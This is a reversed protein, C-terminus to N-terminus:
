YSLDGDESQEEFLSFPLFVSVYSEAMGMGPRFHYMHIRENVPDIAYNADKILDHFDRNRYCEEWDESSECVGVNYNNFESVYSSNSEAKALDDIIYQYLVDEFNSFLKTPADELFTVNGSIDMIADTKYIGEQEIETELGYDLVSAYFNKEDLVQITLDYELQYGNLDNNYITVNLNMNRYHDIHELDLAEILKSKVKEGIEEMLFPYKALDDYALNYDSSNFIYFKLYNTDNLFEGTQYYDDNDSFNVVFECTQPLCYTTIEEEYIDEDTLFRDYITLEDYYPAYSSAYFWGYEQNRYFNFSTYGIGFTSRNNKYDQLFAIMENEATNEYDDEYYIGAMCDGIYCVYQYAEQRILADMNTDQNFLEELKIEEGTTLDINRAEEDCTISLVNSVNFNVYCGYDDENELAELESLITNVKEEVGKDKLGTISVTGILNIDIPNVPYEQYIDITDKKSVKSFEIYPQYEEEFTNTVPDKDVSKNHRIIFYCTLSTSAIVIFIIIIAFIINAKKQQSM